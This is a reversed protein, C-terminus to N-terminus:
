LVVESDQKIYENFLYIYIYLVYILSFFLMICIKPNKMSAATLDPCERCLFTLCYSM